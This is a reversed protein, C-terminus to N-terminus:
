ANKTKRQNFEFFNKKEQYTMYSLESYIQEESLVFEFDQHDMNHVMRYKSFFRNGKKSEWEKGYGSYWNFFLLTQEESTMQARLIKLYAIKEKEEFFKSTVVSKVILYLHRYYSNLVDRHGQMILCRNDKFPSRKLIEDFNQILPKKISPKQVFDIVKQIDNKESQIIGSTGNLGEFFIEYIRTFKVKNLM